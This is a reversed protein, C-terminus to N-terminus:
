AIQGDVVQQLGRAVVEIAAASLVKPVVIGLVLPGYRCHVPLVEMIWDNALKVQLSGVATSGAQRNASHSANALTRAVQHLKESRIEDILLHGDRDAVFFAETQVSERLWERYALLRERLSGAPIPQPAAEEPDPPLPPPVPSGGPRSEVPASAETQPRAPGDPTSPEPSLMTTLPSLLGGQEARRRARSLAERAQLEISSQDPTMERTPPDPAPREVGGPEVKGGPRVPGDDPATFGVFGDGFGTDKSPEAGSPVPQLLSAALKRLAVPDIWPDIPNM